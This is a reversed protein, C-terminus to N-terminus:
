KKSDLNDYDGFKYLNEDGTDSFGYRIANFGIRLSKLIYGLRGEKRIRRVSNIFKSESLFIFKSGQKVMRQVLDHDEGVKIREDFGGSKVFADRKVYLNMATALPYVPKLLKFFYWFVIQYYIHDLLNSSDPLTQALALDPKRREIENLYKELTDNSQFTVDADLFLINQSVTKSVGFNRQKSITQKPIQFFKLSKLVKQRKEIEEKTKDDSFVDVIVIEKPLITQNILSDLLKGIFHEERWTPIVIAWNIERM